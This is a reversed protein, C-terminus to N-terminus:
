IERCFVFNETLKSLYSEVVSARWGIKFNEFCVFSISTGSDTKVYSHSLPNSLEFKKFAVSSFINKQYNKLVKKVATKGVDGSFNKLLM